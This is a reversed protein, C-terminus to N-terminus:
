RNTQGGMLDASASLPRYHPSREVALCLGSLLLVCRCCGLNRSSREKCRRSSLRYLYRLAETAGLGSAHRRERRGGSPRRREGGGGPGPAARVRVLPAQRGGRSQVCPGAAAQPLPGVVQCFMDVRGFRPFSRSFLISPSFNSTYAIVLPDFM